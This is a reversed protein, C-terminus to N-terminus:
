LTRGNNKRESLNKMEEAAEPKEEDVEFFDVNNVVANIYLGTGGVVIPVFGDSITRDIADYCMKKYTAVDFKESISCIDIMEHPVKKREDVTAKATGVDLGKYIQMSDASIIKGHLTEALSLALGSKGSATPGIIVIVNNNM